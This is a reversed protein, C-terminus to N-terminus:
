TISIAWGCPNPMKWCTGEATALQRPSHRYWSVGSRRRRRRRLLANGWSRRAVIVAREDQQPSAGIVDSADGGPRRLMGTPGDAAKGSSNVKEPRAGNGGGFNKRRITGIVGPYFVLLDKLVLIEVV